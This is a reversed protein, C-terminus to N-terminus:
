FLPYIFPAFATGGLIVLLGAVALALVVPVLWWKKNYRLLDIIERVLSPSADGAEAAFDSQNNQFKTPSTSSV